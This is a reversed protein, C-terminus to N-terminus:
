DEKIKTEPEGDKVCNRYKTFGWFIVHIFFSFMYSGIVLAVNLLTNWENGPYVPTGTASWYFFNGISYLVGLTIVGLFHAFEIRLNCLLLDLLCFLLPGLHVYYAILSHIRGEEPHLTDSLANEDDWGHSLRLYGWYM